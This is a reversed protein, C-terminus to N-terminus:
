QWANNAIISAKGLLALNPSTVYEPLTKISFQSTRKQNKKSKCIFNANVIKAASHWV